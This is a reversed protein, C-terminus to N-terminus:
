VPATRRVIADAVMGTWGTQHFAGLAWEFDGNLYESFVLDDIWNPDMHMREQHGFSPRRGDARPLFISILRHRLDQAIADLALRRGSGTPYEFTLDQGFFQYYRELASIVLCNLPFWVPGRWNSNGGFM